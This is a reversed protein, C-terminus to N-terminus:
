VQNHLELATQLQEPQEFKEIFPQFPTFKTQLENLQPKFTQEIATRMQILSKKYQSDDPLKNIDELSPVGALPDTETTTSEGQVSGATASGTSQESPASTTGSPAPTDGTSQGTPEGVGSDAVGAAGTIPEDM